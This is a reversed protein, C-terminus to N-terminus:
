KVALDLGDAGRSASLNLPYHTADSTTASRVRLGGAEGTDVGSVSDMNVPYSEYVALTDFLVPLGTQAILASLGIQQHDLVSVKDHQMAALVDAVSRDPDVDVVAPLTNIFLGIMSEVGVTDPSRGSVTEAFTVVRNGTMRSLLVAWAFQVVTAMTVGSSRSVAELGVTIDDPLVFRRDTPPLDSTTGAPAVLTPEEIPELVKAWAALGETTDAAAVSRVHAAFDTEGAGPLTETYTTGTSYLALLDALVLPGSWGDVLLHHNTIVLESGRAGIVLVARLLPPTALDFPTSKETAEIAALERTFADADLGSNDIVRWDPAVSPRVVAVAAGSDARTFSSRLAAHRTLLLGLADRLRDVDVQGDLSLTAQTVYVDVQGDAVMDAEFFLGNQLPTLPWLDAGPADALLTDIQQQTLGAGPVDSPSPGPDVGEGVQAAVAELESTWRAAIDEADHNDLVGRLYSLDAHLRGDVTSVNMSVVTSAAMAGTVTAPLAPADPAPLFVDDPADTRASSNGLYNLGVTPLPREALASDTLYRVAGFSATLDPRGLLSEKASKVAHIMDEGPEVSVPEITTFWGVTRTLDAIGDAGGVTEDRGHSEVQITVPRDDSIGRDAQWGRVARALAALLVDDTGSRFAAPVTSLVAESTDADVVTLHSGQSSWRDRDRDLPTGFRTPETPLRELWYASQDDDHVADAVAQAMRRASTVEPRLTVAKGEAHQAWGTALDEILIPWSVADVGIHHIALVLRGRDAGRVLVAHVLAGRAPDLAALASRHAGAITDDTVEPVDVVSVQAPSGAGGTLTWEGSTEVLTANLMPHTEVVANLVTAVDGPDADRPVGLVVTQSFDAFDAAAGSHELMWRVIPPITVPGRGGGDLEPLVDRATGGAVAAAMARVTKLEFIERPTLHLGAAKAASALQISMISDGRLAFFSETVSVREEGLLGAVIRALSEEAESEPATYAAPEVAAPAPLADRDLKGAPTLPIEAITVAQAPVMHAALRDAAEALVADSDVTHGPKAVLYAVLQVHRREGASSDV